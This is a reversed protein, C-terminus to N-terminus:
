PRAEPCPPRLAEERADQLRCYALNLAELADDVSFGPHTLTFNKIVTLLDRAVELHEPPPPPAPPGIAARTWEKPPDDAQARRVRIDTEERSVASKLEVWSKPRATARAAAEGRGAVM